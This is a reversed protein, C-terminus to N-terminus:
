LGVCRRLAVRLWSGRPGAAQAPPEPLPIWHTPHADGNVDDLLVEAYRWYGTEGSEERDQADHRQWLMPQPWDDGVGIGLIVTGDRPACGISKWCLTSRELAAPRTSIAINLM